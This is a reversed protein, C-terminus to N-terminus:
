RAVYECRRLMSRCSRDTKDALAIITSEQPVVGGEPGGDIEQVDIDSDRYVDDPTGFPDAITAM